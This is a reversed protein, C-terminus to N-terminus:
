PQVNFLNDFLTVEFCKHELKMWNRNKLQVVIQTKKYCYYPFRKWYRLNFYNKFSFEAAFTLFYFKFFVNSSNTLNGSLLVWECIHLIQCQPVLISSTEKLCCHNEFHFAGGFSKRETYKFKLHKSFQLISVTPKFYRINVDNCVYQINWIWMQVNLLNTKSPQCYGGCFYLRGAM